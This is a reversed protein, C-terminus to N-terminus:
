GGHQALSLQHMMIAIRTDRAKLAALESQNMISQLSVQVFELFIGVVKDLQKQIKRVVVDATNAAGRAVKKAREQYDHIAVVIKRLAGEINKKSAKKAARNKKHDAIHLFEEALMDTADAMEHILPEVLALQEKPHTCHKDEVTALLDEALVYLMTVDHYKAEYEGMSYDKKAIASM